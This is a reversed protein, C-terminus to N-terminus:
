QTNNLKDSLSTQEEGLRADEEVWRKEEETFWENAQMRKVIQEMRSIRTSIIENIRDVDTKYQDYIQSQSKLQEWGPQVEKLRNLGDTWSQIEGDGYNPPIYGAVHQVVIQVPCGNLYGVATSVGIEDFDADYLFKTKNPQELIAEFLEQADYYGVIHFESYTINSYGVDTMAEKMTYGSKPADYDLDNYKFMVDSRLKASQELKPQYTLPELGNNSREKNILSVYADIDFISENQNDLDHSSDRWKSAFRASQKEYPIYYKVDKIDILGIQRSDLSVKRNDGLVMLKGEPVTTDQCDQISAGGFTSRSKFIYPEEVPENNVYVYGDRIVVTDGAVGIVRKVFGSEEKDQKKLADETQTNEFVVIDGRKIQQPIVSQFRQDQIYRQFDVFGEEPLTPLMSAGSVPVQVPFFGTTQLFFWGGIIFGAFLVVQLIFGLLKLPFLLVEVFLSKNNTNAM